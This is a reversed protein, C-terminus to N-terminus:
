YTYPVLAGPTDRFARSSNQRNLPRAARTKRLPSSQILANCTGIDLTLSSLPRRIASDKLARVDRGPGNQATSTLLPDACLDSRRMGVADSYAM